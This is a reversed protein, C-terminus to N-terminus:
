RGRSMSFTDNDLATTLGSIALAIIIARSWNEMKQFGLFGESLREREGTPQSLPEEDCEVELILLWSLHVMQRCTASECMELFSLHAGEPDEGFSKHIHYRSISIIEDVDVESGAGFSAAAM